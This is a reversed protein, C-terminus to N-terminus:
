HDAHNCTHSHLMSFYTPSTRFQGYNVTNPGIGDSCTEGNRYCMDYDIEVYIDVWYSYSAGQLRRREGYQMESGRLSRQLDLLAKKTNPPTFMDSLYDNYPKFYNNLDQDLGQGDASLLRRDFEKTANVMMNSDFGCSWEPPIFDAATNAMAQNM